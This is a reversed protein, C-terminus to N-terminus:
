LGAGEEGYCGEMIGVGRGDDEKVSLDLKRISQLSAFGIVASCGGPGSTKDAAEAVKM